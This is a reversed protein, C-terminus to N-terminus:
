CSCCCSAVVCGCTNGGGVVVVVVIVIQCEDLYPTLRDRESVKEKERERESDRVIQKARHRKTEGTKGRQRTEYHQQQM